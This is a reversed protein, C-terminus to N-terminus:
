TVDGYRHSLSLKRVHVMWALVSEDFPKQLGRPWGLRAQLAEVPLRPRQDRM